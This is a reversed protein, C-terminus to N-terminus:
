AAEAGYRTDAPLSIAFTTGADSSKVICIQGRHCEAIQQCLHLGMGGSGNAVDAQHPGQFPKFVKDHFREEIGMGNDAVSIQWYDDVLRASVDIVLQRTDSRYRIANTLLNTALQELQMGDGELQPLEAIDLRASVQEMLPALRTRANAFVQNMDVTGPQLRERDFSSFDLLNESLRRLRDSVGQLHQLNETIPPTIRSSLANELLTISLDIDRVPIQLDHSTVHAFRRLQDGSEQERERALLLSQKLEEAHRLARNRAAVLQFTGAAGALSTFFGFLAIMWLQDASKLEAYADPALSVAIQWERNALRVHRLQTKADPHTEGRSYFYQGSQVGAERGDTVDRITIATFQELDFSRLLREFRFVGMLVGSYFQRREALTEPEVGGYVPLMILFGKVESRTVSVALPPSVAFEGSDRAHELTLLREASTSLDFGMMWQRDHMPYVYTLVHHESLYRDLVPKLAFEPYGQEVISRDERVSRVFEHAIHHPVRPVWAMAFVTPFSSELEVSELYAEFDHRGVIQGDEYLSRLGRLLTQQNKLADAVRVSLEDSRRAFEDMRSRQIGGNAINMVFSTLLLGSLFVVAPWLKPSKVIMKTTLVAEKM